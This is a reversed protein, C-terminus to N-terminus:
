YIKQSGIVIRGTREKEKEKGKREQGKREKGARDKRKSERGTRKKGKKETGTRDKGKGKRKRKREKSALGASTQVGELAVQLGKRERGEGLRRILRLSTKYTHLSSFFGQLDPM